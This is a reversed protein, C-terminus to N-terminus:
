GLRARLERKLVKGAASVPIEDVFFLERIRKYPLVNENIATLLADETVSDDSRVVFAVPLEGVDMRKRGVVAAARVGPQAMLLEELERPYVNYGKYLLMDKKRDVISLYGEKDLVGIDGTHLWGDVLVAATEEPRNHYGRMVQPGRICVEGQEGAPLPDEGGEAPVIKVETDFVPVGVTGQKRVGSRFPPGSTAGMTVETLGYGENITADPFRRALARLMEHPLPAAGSSLARVSSLDRTAFDPCNLLAAFLAPAGGIQTVRLREADALYRVPDFGDQLATTGGTLMPVNLGGITGMAHFWPTLNLGIGTGLRGPYEEESGRQDLTLNGDADLVPVSGSGWCAYQLSNVVVNRHPLEVGKSRGTTGGTYALHALRDYVDIEVDPRTESQGSSFEDLEAAEVVLRVKTRDQVAALAQAAKGFTVAAVAGSDALQAALDAPPLLPNAPTFTAGALLIGYYAVPYALCNPAHIAVVDGPEVDHARLAHAFRCAARYVEAFTLQRDHHLYAVRDGYRTAAGALISGVPVEPYDFSGPVEAPLTIPM